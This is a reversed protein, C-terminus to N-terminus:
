RFNRNSWIWIIENTKSSGVCHVISLFANKRKQTSTAFWIKGNLNRRERESRRDDMALALRKSNLELRPTHTLEKGKIDACVGNSYLQVQTAFRKFTGNELIKLRKRNNINHMRKVWECRWSRRICNMTRSVLGCHWQSCCVYEVNFLSSLLLLLLLPEPLLNLLVM